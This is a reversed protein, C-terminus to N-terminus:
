RTELVRSRFRVKAPWHQVFSSTGSSNTRARNQNSEIDIEIRLRLLNSGCYSGVNSLRPAHGFIEGAVGYNIRLSILRSARPPQSSAPSDTPQNLFEIASLHRHVQEVVLDCRQM